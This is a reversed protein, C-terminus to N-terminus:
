PASSPSAAPADPLFRPSPRSSARRAPDGGAHVSVPRACTGHRWRPPESGTVAVSSSVRALSRFRRVVRAAIAGPSGQHRNRGLRRVTGASIEIGSRVLPHLIEPRGHGRAHQGEVLELGVEPVAGLDQAAAGDVPRVPLAVDEREQEELPDAVDPVLLRGFGPLFVAVDVQVVERFQVAERQRVAAVPLVDALRRCADAGRERPRHPRDFPGVEVGQRADEARGVPAVALREAVLQELVEDLSQGHHREAVRRDPGVDEAIGVLVQDALEGVDRPALLRALEVRGSAHHPHHNLQEIRPLPSLM